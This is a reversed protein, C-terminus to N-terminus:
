TKSNFNRGFQNVVGQHLIYYLIYLLCSIHTISTISPDSTTSSIELDNM